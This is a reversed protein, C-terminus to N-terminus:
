KRRNGTSPGPRNWLIRRPRSMPRRRQPMNGSRRKRLPWCKMLTPNTQTKLDKGSLIRTLIWGNRMAPPRRSNRWNPPFAIQPKRDWPKWSRATIRLEDRLFNRRSIRGHKKRMPFLLPMSHIKRGFFLTWIMPLILPGSRLKKRPFIKKLFPCSGTSRRSIRRTAMTFRWSLIGPIGSMATIPSSVMKMWPLMGGMPKMILTTKWITRYRCLKWSM